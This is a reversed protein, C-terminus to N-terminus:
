TLLSPWCVDMNEPTIERDTAEGSARRVVGAVEAVV